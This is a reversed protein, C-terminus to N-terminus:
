LNKPVQPTLKGALSDSVLCGLFMAFPVINHEVSASELVVVYNERKEMPIVTWPYGDAALIINVLFRGMRGNGNSLPL